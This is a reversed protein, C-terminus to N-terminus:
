IDKPNIRRQGPEVEGGIGARYNRLDAILAAAQSQDLDLKKRLFNFVAADHTAAEAVEILGLGHRRAQDPTFQCKQDGWSYHVFPKGQPNVGSSMSITNEDM